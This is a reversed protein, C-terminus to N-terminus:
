GLERARFGTVGVPEDGWLSQQLTVARPLGVSRRFVVAGLLFLATVRRLAEVRASRRAECRENCGEWDWVCNLMVVCTASLHRGYERLMLFVPSIPCLDRCGTPNLDGHGLGHQM